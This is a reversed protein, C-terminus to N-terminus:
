PTVGHRKSSHFSLNKKRCVINLSWLLERDVVPADHKQNSLSTAPIDELDDLMM